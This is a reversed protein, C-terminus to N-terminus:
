IIYYIITLYKQYIFFQALDQRLRIKDKIMSEYNHNAIYCLLSDKIKEIWVTMKQKSLAPEHIVISLDFSSEASHVEYVRSSVRDFCKRAAHIQIRISASARYAHFYSCTPFSIVQIGRTGKSHWIQAQFCLAVEMTLQVELV